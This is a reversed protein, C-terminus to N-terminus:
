VLLNVGNGIEFYIFSLVDVKLNCPLYLCVTGTEMFM